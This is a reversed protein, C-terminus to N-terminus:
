ESALLSSKGVRINGIKWGDQGPELKFIIPVLQGIYRGTFQVEMNERGEPRVDVAKADQLPGREQILLRLWQNFQQTTIKGTLSPSANDKFWETGLRDVDLASIGFIGISRHAYRAIEDKEIAMAVRVAAMYQIAVVLVGLILGTAVLWRRRGTPRNVPGGIIALLVCIVGVGMGVYGSIRLGATGGIRLILVPLWSFLFLCALGNSLLLMTCRRQPSTSPSQETGETMMVEEGGQVTPDTSNTM